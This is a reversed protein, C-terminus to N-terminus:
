RAHLYREYKELPLCSMGMQNEIVCIIAPEKVFGSNVLISGVRGGWEKQHALAAKLQVEDILDAEILMEGLKKRTRAM